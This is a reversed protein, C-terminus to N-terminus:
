RAVQFEQCYHWFSFDGDWTFEPVQCGVVLQLANNAEMYARGARNELGSDACICLVKSKHWEIPAYKKMTKAFSNRDPSVQAWAVSGSFLLILLAAISRKM